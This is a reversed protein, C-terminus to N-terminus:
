YKNFTKHTTKLLQLAIASAIIPGRSKKNLVDLNKNRSHDSSIQRKDMREHMKLQVATVDNKESQNSRTNKNM